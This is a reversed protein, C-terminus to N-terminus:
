VFPYHTTAITQASSKRYCILRITQQSKDSLEQRCLGCVPQYNSDELWQLYPAVICQLPICLSIMLNYCCDRILQHHCRNDVSRRIAPHWATSASMSKTNLASSIRWKRRRVNAYVWRQIHYIHSRNPWWHNPGSSLSSSSVPSSQLCRSIDWFLDWHCVVCCSISEILSCSM